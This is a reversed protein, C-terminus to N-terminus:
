EGFRFRHLGPGEARLWDRQARWGPALDAVLAWFSRSHDMHALHAVEHAAVYDLVGPPAMALRWSYMLRGDTSCSGWRSRTDRLVLASYRRGIRGAHRASAEALRDRALTRLYARVETAACLGPVLLRDAEARPGAARVPDTVVTLPRGEVPVVSGLGVVEPGPARAQAAAIWDRRDRAFARAEAASARPPMTLTVRGDLASVRLSLRRARPSRRLRVEIEPDGTLSFREEGM